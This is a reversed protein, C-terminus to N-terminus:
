GFIMRRTVGRFALLSYLLRPVSITLLMTLLPTFQKDGIHGPTAFFLQSFMELGQRRQSRVNFDVDQM